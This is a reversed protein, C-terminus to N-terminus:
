EMGEEVKLTRKEMRKFFENREKLAHYVLDGYNYRKLVVIKDRGLGVLPLSWRLKWIPVGMIDKV